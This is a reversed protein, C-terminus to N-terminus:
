YYLQWQNKDKLEEGIDICKIRSDNSYGFSVRACEKAEEKNIARILLINGVGAIGSANDPICMYIRMLKEKLIKM